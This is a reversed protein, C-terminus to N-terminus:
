PSMTSEDELTTKSSEALTPNGLYNLVSSCQCTLHEKKIYNYCKKDTSAQTRGYSPLAVFGFFDRHNHSMESLPQQKHKRYGDQLAIPTDCQKKTSEGLTKSVDHKVTRPLPRRETPPMKHHVHQRSV